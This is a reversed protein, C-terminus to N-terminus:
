SNKLGYYRIIGDAQFTTVPSGDWFLQVTDIANVSSMNDIQSTCHYAWPTGGAGGYIWQILSDIICGSGVFSGGVINIRGSASHDSTSDVSFTLQHEDTNVQANITTGDVDRYTGSYDGTSALMTIGDDAGLRLLMNRDVFPQINDLEIRIEDYATEDWTFNIFEETGAIIKTELLVWQGGSSSSLANVQSQLNELQNQISIIVTASVATSVENVENGLREIIESLLRKLVLQDELAEDTVILDDAM